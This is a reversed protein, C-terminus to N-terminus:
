ESCGTETDCGYYQHIFKLAVQTKGAGGLGYLVFIHCESPTDFFYQRMKELIDARGTFLPSPLPCPKLYTFDEKSSSGPHAGQFYQELKVQPSNNHSLIDGNTTTMRSYDARTYMTSESAESRNPINALGM